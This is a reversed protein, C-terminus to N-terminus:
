RLTENLHPFDVSPIEVGLFPCLKQWGDGKTIDMILLRAPDIDRQVQEIHQQYVRKFLYETARHSGYVRNRLLTTFPQSMPDYIPRVENFHYEISQWWDNIDRVTLIAKAQPYAALLERYFYASPIDVVADIDNYCLFDPANNSGDLVDNLRTKDHHITTYGLLKLAEALSYTGTKSIGVGLIQM